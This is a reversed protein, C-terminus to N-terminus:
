ENKKLIKQRKKNTRNSYRPATEVDKVSIFIFAHMKGSVFDFRKNETATKMDKSCFLSDNEFTNRYIVKENVFMELKCGNNKEDTLM